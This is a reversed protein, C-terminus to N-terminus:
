RACGDVWVPAEKFGRSPQLFGWDLEFVHLRTDVRRQAQLRMGVGLIGGQRLQPTTFTVKRMIPSFTLGLTQIVM